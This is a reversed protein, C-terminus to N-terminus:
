KEMRGRLKNMKEEIRERVRKTETEDIIINTLKGNDFRLNLWDGVRVNKPLLSLDIILEEEEEGALLVAKEETINELVAKKNM